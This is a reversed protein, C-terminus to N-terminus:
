STSGAGGALVVRPVTLWSEAQPKAARCYIVPPHCVPLQLVYMAAHNYAGGEVAGHVLTHRASPAMPYGGLPETLSPEPATWTPCEPGHSSCHVPPSPRPPPPPASRRRSGARQPPTQQQWRAAADVAATIPLLRCCCFTLCLILRMLTRCFGPTAQSAPRLMMM